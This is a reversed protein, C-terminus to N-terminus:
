LLSIISLGFGVLSIDSMHDEDGRVDPFQSKNLEYNPHCCPILILHVSKIQNPLSKSLSAQKVSIILSTVIPHFLVSTVNIFCHQLFDELSAMNPLTKHTNTHTKPPSPAPAVIHNALVNCSSMFLQEDSFAYSCILQSQSRTAHSVFRNFKNSRTGIYLDDKWTNQSWSLSDTVFVKGERM